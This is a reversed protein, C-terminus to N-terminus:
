HPSSGTDGQRKCVLLLIRNKVGVNYVKGRDNRGIVAAGIQALEIPFSRNGEIGTAIYYTRLSGDIFFRYLNKQARFIPPTLRYLNAISPEPTEAFTTVEQSDRNILMDELEDEDPRQLDEVAGGSAPLIDIKDGLLKLAPTIINIPLPVFIVRGEVADILLFHNKSTFKHCKMGHGDM